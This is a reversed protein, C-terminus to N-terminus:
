AQEILLPVINTNPRVTQAWSFGGWSWGTNIDFKVSRSTAATLDIFISQSYAKEIVTGTNVVQTSFSLMVKQIPIIADLSNGYLPFACLAQATGDVVESIGCTLPTTTLNEISILGAAGAVVDGTGQATMVELSQGLDIPYASIGTIQGGPIIKSRSTYAEYQIEWDVGTSKAYEATQFWVLPAGGGISAQVAKFGYLLYQGNSLANVTEDSMEIMVKYATAGLLNGTTPPRDGFLGPLQLGDQEVLGGVQLVSTGAYGLEKAAKELRPPSMTGPGTATVLTTSVEVITYKSPDYITPQGTNKGAKKIIEVVRGSNLTGGEREFRYEAM